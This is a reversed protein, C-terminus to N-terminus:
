TWGLARSDIHNQYSRARAVFEGCNLCVVVSPRDLQILSASPRYNLEASPLYFHVTCM